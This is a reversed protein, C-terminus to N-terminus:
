GAFGPLDGDPSDSPTGQVTVRVPTVAVLKLAATWPVATPLIGRAPGGGVATVQATPYSFTGRYPRM